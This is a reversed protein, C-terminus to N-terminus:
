NLNLARFWFALSYKKICGWRDLSVSKKYIMGQNHQNAAFLFTANEANQGHVEILELSCVFDGTLRVSKGIIPVTVIGTDKNSVTFIIDETNWKHSPQRNSLSYFNLRFKISDCPIQYIFFNFSTLEIHNKNKILTGGELGLGNAKFFGKVADKQPKYGLELPSTLHIIVEPLAKNTPTLELVMHESMQNLQSITYKNTVFGVHTIMVTENDPLDRIVLTFNGTSSSVTGTNKDEIGINAYAVPEKTLHNIVTGSLVTQTLAELGTILFSLLIFYHKM